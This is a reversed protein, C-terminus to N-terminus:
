LDEYVEKRHRARLVTVVQEQDNVKYIVRYDGVRVAYNEEGKLKKCGHPRPDLKLSEITRNIDEQVWTPFRHIKKLVSRKVDLQYPM